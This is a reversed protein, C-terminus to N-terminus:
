SLGLRTSSAFFCVFLFVFCGHTPQTSPNACLECYERGVSDVICRLNVSLCFRTVRFVNERVCACVCARVCESLCVRVCVCVCVMRFEVLTAQKSHPQAAYSIRLLGHLIGFTVCLVAVSCQVIYATSYQVTTHISHQVITYQLLRTSHQTIVAKAQSLSFRTSTPWWTSSM